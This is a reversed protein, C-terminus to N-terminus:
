GQDRLAAEDRECDLKTQLTADEVLDSSYPTGPPTAVLIADATDECRQCLYVIGHRKLMVHRALIGCIECAPEPDRKGM